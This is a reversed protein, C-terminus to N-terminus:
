SSDNKKIEVYDTTLIQYYYISTALDNADFKVKHESATQLSFIQISVMLKM